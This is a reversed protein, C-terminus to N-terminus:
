VTQLTIRTDSHSSVHELSQLEETALFQWLADSEEEKSEPVSEVGAVEHVKGELEENDDKLLLDSTHWRVTCYTIKTILMNITTTTTTTITM